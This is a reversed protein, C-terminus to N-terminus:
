RHQPLSAFGRYIQQVHDSDGRLYATAYAWVLKALPFAELMDHDLSAPHTLISTVQLHSPPTRNAARHLANVIAETQQPTRRRQQFLTKINAVITALVGVMPRLAQESVSGPVQGAASKICALFSPQEL